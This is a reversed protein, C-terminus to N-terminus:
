VGGQQEPLPLKEDGKRPPANGIRNLADEEKDLSYFCFWFVVGAVFSIVAAVGYNWILLPDGALPNLAENLASSIASMFLFVSMVLSRMSKPAKTFAYELGTISAFIESFAVLVYSGSQIWVNLPSPDCTPDNAYFGCPSTKYVYYQTVAAWIMAAAAMMFGTFIRKIPSFNIGIRRLGPYVFMDCIPIFIILALPDLNNIVDNPFGNTTMTAAQSTLNNNLQNYSIWYLPYFLFVACAKLGRMVEDVFEDDWTLWKPRDRGHSKMYYGLKARNWFDPDNYAQHFRSPSFTFCPAMCTRWIRLSQGLVSGKPPSKIYMRNGIVLVIPCLCFMITPLMYALWYGVYKESYTMGIQGVLAGVNIMLYFYLYIRATTVAPDLIVREGKNTTVIMMTEPGKHQEAVLPSINAKFGGTGLGMIILAIVFCALSGNTNRIVSPIASMTMLIHGILAIAVSWCVTKFRGLHTDAIYAGFLPIVYVWFSNFTTLGTSANTGLGLAGPTGTPNKGTISGPPLPRQIFNTFVATTGYYSFRECLEVFAILYTAWNIPGSIRRLKNPGHMEEETPEDGWHAGAPLIHEDINPLKYTGDDKKESPGENSPSSFEPFPELEGAIGM